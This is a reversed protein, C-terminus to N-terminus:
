SKTPTSITDMNGALAHGVGPAESLLFLVIAFAGPLLDLVDDFNMNPLNVAPLGAQM